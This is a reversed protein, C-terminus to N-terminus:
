LSSLKLFDCWLVQYEHAEQEFLINIIKQRVETVPQPNCCVSEAELPTVPWSGNEGNQSEHCFHLLLICGISPGQDGRGLVNRDGTRMLNIMDELLSSHYLLVDLSHASLQLGLSWIWRLVLGAEMAQIEWNSSQKCELYWDLGWPGLCWSQGPPKM